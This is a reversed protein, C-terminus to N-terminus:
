AQPAGVGAGGGATRDAGRRTCAGRAGRRDGAAKRGAPRPEARDGAARCSYTAMFLSEGSFMRALGKMFGGRVNTQMEIGETMWSMGGSQTYISDGYKMRLTVAPMTNGWIEYEM